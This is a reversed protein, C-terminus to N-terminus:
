GVKDLKVEINLLDSLISSLFQFVKENVKDNRLRESMFILELILDIDNNVEDLVSYGYKNQKVPIFELKKYMENLYDGALTM